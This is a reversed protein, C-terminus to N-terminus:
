EGWRSAQAAQELSTPLGDQGRERVLEGALTCRPANVPGRAAHRIIEDILATAMDLRPHRAHIAQAQDDTIFESGRGFDLGIGAGTLYALVSRREAIGPSTHLAIADWVLDV